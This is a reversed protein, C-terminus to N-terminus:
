DTSGSSSVGQSNNESEEVLVREDILVRKLKLVLAAGDGDALQAVRFDRQLFRRKNEDFDGSEYFGDLYGQFIAQNSELMQDLNEIAFLTQLFDDAEGFNGDRIFGRKLLALALENDEDNLFDDSALEQQLLM